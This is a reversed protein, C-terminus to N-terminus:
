ASLPQSVAAKGGSKVKDSYYKLLIPCASPLPRQGELTQGLSLSMGGMTDCTFAFRKALLLYLM